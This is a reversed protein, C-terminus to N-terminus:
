KMLPLIAAPVNFQTRYRGAPAELRFPRGRWCDPLNDYGYRITEHLLEEALGGYVKNGCGDCLALYICVNGLTALGGLVVSKEILVVHMGNRAASAAASIGAIGGGVVVVDCNKVVPVTQKAIVFEDHLEM